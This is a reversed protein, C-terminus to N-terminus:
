SIYPLASMMRVHFSLVVSIFIEEDVAHSYCLTFRTHKYTDLHHHVAAQRGCPPPVSHPVFPPLTVVLLAFTVVLRHKHLPAFPHARLQMCLNTSEYIDYIM